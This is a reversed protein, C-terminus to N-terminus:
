VVRHYGRGTLAKALHEILNVEGVTALLALGPHADDFVADFRLGQKKGLEMVEDSSHMEVLIKIGLLGSRNDATHGEVIFSRPDVPEFGEAAFSTTEPTTM